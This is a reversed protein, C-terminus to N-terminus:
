AKHSEATTNSLHWHHEHWERVQPLSTVISDYITLQGEVYIRAYQMFQKLEEASYGVHEFLGDEELTAVDEDEDAGLWYCWCPTYVYHNVTQLVTPM